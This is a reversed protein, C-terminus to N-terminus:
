EQCSRVCHKTRLCKMEMVDVRGEEQTNLALFVKCCGESMGMEAKVYREKWM